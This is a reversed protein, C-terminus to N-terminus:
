NNEYLDTWTGKQITGCNKTRTGNYTNCKVKIDVREKEKVDSRTNTGRTASFTAKANGKALGTVKFAATGDRRTLTGYNPSITVKKKGEENIKVEVREGAVPCNNKGSVVIVIDKSEDVKVTISDDNSDIHKATCGSVEAEIQPKASSNVVYKLYQDGHDYNSSYSKGSSYVAFSFIILIGAFIVYVTKKSIM